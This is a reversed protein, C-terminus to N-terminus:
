NLTVDQRVVENQRTLTVSANGNLTGKIAEITYSGPEVWFAFQGDSGVNVIRVATTGQKLTVVTGSASAAPTIRGWINYPAPPPTTESTRTLSIDNVTVVGSVAVNPQASFETAFYNEASVRGRIGWFATQTATSYAVQELRFTGVSNTKATRGAFTVTAGVVEQGNSADLIRGTVAVKQPGIWLDGVDATGEAAPYTYTWTGLTGADVVLSTSGGPVTLQFSGDASTQVSNSGVQVRVSPSAAGGSSVNLVRGVITANPTFGGGGGGCALVVLAAIVAVM